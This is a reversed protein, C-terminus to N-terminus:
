QFNLGLTKNLDMPNYKCLETEVNPTNKNLISTISLFINTEQTTDDTWIM